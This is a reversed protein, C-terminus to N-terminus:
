IRTSEFKASLYKYFEPVIFKAKLNPDCQIEIVEMQMYSPVSEIIISFISCFLCFKDELYDFDKFRTEFETRLELIKEAYKQYSSIYIQKL